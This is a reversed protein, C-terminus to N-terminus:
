FSDRSPPMRLMGKAMTSMWLQKASGARRANRKWGNVAGDERGKLQRSEGTQCENTCKVNEM